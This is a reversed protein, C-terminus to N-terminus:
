LAKSFGGGAANREDNESRRVFFYAENRMIDRAECASIKSCGTFFGKEFFQQEKL